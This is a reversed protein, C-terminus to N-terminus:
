LAFRVFTVPSILQNILQASKNSLYVVENAKALSTYLAAITSKQRECETVLVANQTRLDGLNGITQDQWM